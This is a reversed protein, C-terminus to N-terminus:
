NNRDGCKRLWKVSILSRLSRDPSNGKQRHCKATVTESGGIFSLYESITVARYAPFVGEGFCHEVGKRYPRPQGSLCKPSFWSDGPENPKEGRDM